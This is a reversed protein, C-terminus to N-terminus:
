DKLTKVTIIDVNGDTQIKNDIYFLHKVNM